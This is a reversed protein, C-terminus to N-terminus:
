VGRSDVLVGHRGVPGPTRAMEASKPSRCVADGAIVIIAVVAVLVPGGSAPQPYERQLQAIVARIWDM